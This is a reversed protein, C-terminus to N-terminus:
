LTVDGSIRLILDKLEKNNDVELFEVGIDFLEGSKQNFKVLIEFTTDIVGPAFLHLGLVSGVELEKYYELKAGHYSIDLLSGSKEAKILGLCRKEVVSTSISEMVSHRVGRRREQM